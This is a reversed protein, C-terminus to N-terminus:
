APVTIHKGGFVAQWNEIETVVIDDAAHALDAVGGYDLACAPGALLLLARQHVAALKEATVESIAAFREFDGFYRVGALAAAFTPFLVGLFTFLPSARHFLDVPVVSLTVGARLALYLVASIVALLFLWQSLGDLNRHVSTLRRAKEEHYDRQRVVHEDLLGALIARLYDQSVAVRPLGVDRLGQRAYWEPWSTKTGKPWRGPPRAVGLALLIPSHRFYEAVRRTEFWRAHWQRRRGAATVLLISALLAFELLAFPWKAAAGALPLYAVGAVIALGSALFSGTMGGRYLDSLHTSVGDAWAFRQLVGAEVKEAFAPDAGPLARTAALVGAGSGAAFGDPAEYTRRLDRLPAAEGGFLAEVRRYAHFLPNSRKRWALGELAKIGARADDSAADGAEPPRLAGQVLGALLGAREDPAAVAPLVLAEPARLIRWDEPANADVWIVPAGMELAVAISHGTGGVFARSRGDWVAIILDSQEILVRAALAVRVSSHATFNQMAAMDGPADLMALFLAAITADADALEFVGARDSFARIAQARGRLEGGIAGGDLMARAEAANAPRANIATNLVRGFPLPAVLEWGRELASRAATQDVGDALMSHLRVPAPAGPGLWSSETALGATIADLVQDLATEVRAWNAALAANDARHGVVGLSLRVRPPPPASITGSIM